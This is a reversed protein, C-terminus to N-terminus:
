PSKEEADVRLLQAKLEGKAPVYVRDAPVRRRNQLAEVGSGESSPSLDM